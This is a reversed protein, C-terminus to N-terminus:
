NGSRAPRLKELAARVHALDPDADLRATLLARLEIRRDAGRMARLLPLLSRPDGADIEFAVRLLDAAEDIEGANLLLVGLSYHAEFDGPDAVVM